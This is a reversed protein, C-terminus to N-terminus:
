RLSEKVDQDFQASELISVCFSKPIRSDFTSVLGCVGPILWSRVGRTADAAHAAFLLIPLLCFIAASSRTLKKGFM